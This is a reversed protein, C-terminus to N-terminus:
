NREVSDADRMGERKTQVLKGCTLGILLHSLLALMQFDLVSEAIDNKDNEDMTLFAYNPLLSITPEPPSWKSQSLSQNNDILLDFTGLDSNPIESHKTVKYSHSSIIKDEPQFKKMSHSQVM